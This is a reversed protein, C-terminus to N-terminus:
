ETRQLYLAIVTAIREALDIVARERADREASLTAYEALLTDYSAYASVSQVLALEGTELDTLALHAIVTLNTRTATEDRQVAIGTRSEVLDIDLVHTPPDVPGRPQMRTLLRNRLVQGSRDAILGIDVAALRPEPVAGPVDGYLPRFGCGALATAAVLLCVPLLCVPLLRAPLLPRLRVAVKRCRDRAWKRAWPRAAPHAAPPMATM